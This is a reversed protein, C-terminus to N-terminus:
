MTLLSMDDGGICCFLLCTTSAMYSIPYPFFSCRSRSSCTQGTILDKNTRKVSFNNATAEIPLHRYVYVIICELCLNVMVRNRFLDVLEMLIVKTHLHIIQMTLAKGTVLFQSFKLTVIIILIYSSRILFDNFKICCFYENYNIGGTMMMMMMLCVVM